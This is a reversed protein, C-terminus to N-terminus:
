RIHQQSVPSQLQQLHLDYWGLPSLRVTQTSGAQELEFRVREFYQVIRPLGNTLSTGWMPATLAQGYYAEGGGQEWLQEFLTAIESDVPQPQTPVRTQERAFAANGLPTLEVFAPTDRAAQNMVILARVFRQYTQKGERYTPGLPAGLREIGGHSRWFRWIAAPVRIGAESAEEPLPLLEAAQAFLTHLAAHNAETDSGEGTWLEPTFSAIGLSGAWDHMGGTIHYRPYYRTYTYNAVSAYTQALKISPKHECFPPFLEGGASHYFIAGSADLLFSRILQSEVETEPGLGGTASVVGYAGQVTRSWDNEACADLNTNMNRNLDVGRANFRTGLALGDPNLTPVIYLRITPPVESPSARFHDILDLMLRYTNAEPKGHTSGILVLKRPGEGIRVATIPRGETSAGLVLDTVTVNRPEASVPAVFTTLLSVLFVVNFWKRFM